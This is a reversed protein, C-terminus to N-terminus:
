KVDKTEENKANKEGADQQIAMQGQDKAKFANVIKEDRNVVKFNKQIVKAIQWQYRLLITM